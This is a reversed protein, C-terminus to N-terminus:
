VEEEQIKLYPRKYPFDKAIEEKKEEAEKLTKFTYVDALTYDLPEILIFIKM